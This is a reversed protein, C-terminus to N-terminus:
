INANYDFNIKQKELLTTAPFVYDFIHTHSVM